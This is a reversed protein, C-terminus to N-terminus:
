QIWSSHIEESASERRQIKLMNELRNKYPRFWFEIFLMAYITPKLLIPIFQKLSDLLEPKHIALTLGSVITALVGIIYANRIVFQAQIILQNLGAAKKPYKVIYSTKDFLEHTNKFGYTMISLIVTMGIVISFSALEWMGETGTLLIVAPTALGLVFLGLIGGCDIIMTSDQKEESQNDSLEQPSIEFASALAMKSDLSCNGDKEIRQITRESLGSIAALKEQSWGRQKRLSLVNLNSVSM